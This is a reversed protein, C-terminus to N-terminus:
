PKERIASLLDPRDTIIGDVGMTILQQMIDPNNITWVDLRVNLNHATQILSPTLVTIGAYSMPVQVSVANPSLLHGLGLRSLVVMLAVESEGMSTPISPCTQRFYELVSSHFSGVVVQDELGYDKVLRCLHDAVRTEVPKLEILYRSSPMRKFLSELTPIVIGAPAKLGPYDIEHFGVDFQQIQALTMDAIRGTGNTTTDIIADHRVVLQNDATLHVDLELIDTGVALANVAAELTNGPMLARGNGHAIVEFQDKQYFAVSAVPGSGPVILLGLYILGACALTSFLRKM